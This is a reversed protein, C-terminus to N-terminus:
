FGNTYAIGLSALTAEIDEQEWGMTWWWRTGSAPRWAFRVELGTQEGKLSRLLLGAALVPGAGVLSYHNDAGRSTAVHYWGFGATVFAGLRGPSQLRLLLDFESDTGLGLWREHVGLTAQCGFVLIPPGSAPQRLPFGLSADAAIVHSQPWFINEHRVTRHSGGFAYLVGKERVSTCGVAALLLATVLWGGPM